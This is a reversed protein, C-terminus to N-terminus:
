RELLTQDTLVFYLAQEVYTDGSCAEACTIAAVDPHVNGMLEQLENDDRNALKWLIDGAKHEAERLRIWTLRAIEAGDSTVPMGEVIYDGNTMEILKVTIGDLMTAWYLRHDPQTPKVHRFPRYGVDYLADERYLRPLHAGIAQWITPYTQQSGTTHWWGTDANHVFSHDDNRYGLPTPRYGYQKTLADLIKDKM